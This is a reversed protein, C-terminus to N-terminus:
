GSRRAWVARVPRLVGCGAHALLQDVPIDSLEHLNGLLSLAPRHWPRTSLRPAEEFGGAGGSIRQVGGVDQNQDETKALALNEVEGPLGDIKLLACEHGVMLELSDPSREKVPFSFRPM